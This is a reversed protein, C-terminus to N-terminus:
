WASKGDNDNIGDTKYKTYGWSEVRPWAQYPEDDGDGAVVPPQQESKPDM